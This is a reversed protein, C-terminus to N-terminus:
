EPDPIVNWRMVIVEGNKVRVMGLGKLINLSTRDEVDELRIAGKKELVDGLHKLCLSEDHSLNYNEWFGM